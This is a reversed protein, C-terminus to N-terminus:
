LNITSITKNIEIKKNNNIISGYEVRTVEINQKFIINKNELNSM